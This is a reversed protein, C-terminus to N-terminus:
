NIVGWSNVTNDVTVVRAIGMHRLPRPNPPMDLVPISRSRPFPPVPAPNHNQRLHAELFPTM